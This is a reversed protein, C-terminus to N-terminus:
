TSSTPATHGFQARVSRHPPRSAVATGVAFSPGDRRHLQRRPRRGFAELSPFRAPPVHPPAAPKQDIPTQRKSSGDDAPVVKANHCSRQRVMGNASWWYSLLSAEAAVRTILNRSFLIPPPM